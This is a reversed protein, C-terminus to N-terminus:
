NNGNHNINGNNDIHNINNPISYAGRGVCIVEEADIMKHLLQRVSEGPKELKEAIEKPSVTKGADKAKQLLDIIERREPSLREIPSALCWTVTNPDFRLLIEQREIDRGEIFLKADNGKRDRILVLNADTAGSLGTTGSINDFPDEPNDM